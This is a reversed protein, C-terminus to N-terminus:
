KNKEHIIPITLIDGPFILHPNSLGNERAILPYGWEGGMYERAIDWLTDGNQVIYTIREIYYSDSIKLNELEPVINLSKHLVLSTTTIIVILRGWLMKKIHYPHRPMVSNPSVTNCIEDKRPFFEDQQKFFEKNQTFLENNSNHIKM